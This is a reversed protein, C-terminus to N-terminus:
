LNGAQKLITEYAERSLPCDVLEVFQKKTLSVQRAMQGILHDDLDIGRGHSTKTRARIAKKGGISVYVFWNHDSGPHTPKFGKQQLAAEVDSKDRTM